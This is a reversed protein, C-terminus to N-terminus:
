AVNATLRPDPRTAWARGLRQGPVEVARHLWWAVLVPVGLGIPLWLANFMVGNGAALVACGALLVRQLPEHVLYLPYSIAGLWLLAPRRLLVGLRPLWALQAALCASWVLPAAVKGWGGQAVCVAVSGALVAAYGALGGRGRAVLTASAIGLAFYQAKNPLFARSFTWGSPAIWAWGLAVVALALFVGALRMEGRMRPALLLALVYFQWETSLSWAPGLLSVWLHPLVGDPFLGHTMTLHALVDVVLATPWGETVMSRVPNDAGIWPMGGFGPDLPRVLLALAFVPLFVPFIRAARAVLFPRAAHRFGELSRLIVLGSLIFFVDVAAGGHSLAAPL